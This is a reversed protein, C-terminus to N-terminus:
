APDGEGHQRMPLCHVMNEGAGALVRGRHGLDKEGDVGLEGPRRIRAAGRPLLIEGDREVRGSDAHGPLELHQALVAELGAEEDIRHRSQDVADLRDAPHDLRDEGGALLHLEMEMRDPLADGFPTASPAM